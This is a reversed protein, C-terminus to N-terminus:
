LVISKFFGNYLYISNLIKVIRFYIPDFFPIGPILKLIFFLINKLPYLKLIITKKINSSKLEVENHGLNYAIKRTEAAREKRQIWPKLQTRDSENHYVTSLPYCYGKIESNKLRKAFEFDEAGAHPFAENYGGIKMFDEKKIFLFYSAILDAEFLKNDDWYLGRQWGKLSTYGYHILFRGFQTRKIKEILQPPYTWNLNIASRPNQKYISIVSTINEESIIIDDDIFLIFESKANTAGLNRASAVGNKSNNFISVNKLTSHNLTLKQTKSDNIIIIEADINKISAVAADLTLTFVDTRNKTPIIISILPPM